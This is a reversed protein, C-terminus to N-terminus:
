GIAVVVKVVEEVEAIGGAVGGEATKKSTAVAKVAM